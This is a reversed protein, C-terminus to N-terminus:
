KKELRAIEELIYDAGCGDNEKIIKLCREREELRGQKIGKLEAELKEIFHICMKEQEPMNNKHYNRLKNTIRKIENELEEERTQGKRSDADTVNPLNPTDLNDVGTKRFQQSHNQTQKKPTM